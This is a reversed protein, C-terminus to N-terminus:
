SQIVVHADGVLLGKDKSAMQGEIGIRASMVSTERGILWKALATTVESTLMAVAARAGGANSDTEGRDEVLYDIVDDSATLWVGYTSRVQDMLKKLKAAVIRRITAPSLPTFPVIVDLRGLLEPPFKQDAATQSLARRIEALRQAMVAASGTDDPDYAGIVQYIEAAVNTTLAVHFNAMSVQRGHADTIRADDLVALLLRTCSASAKEIEDLMILGHGVAWARGALDARFTEVMSDQSYESMDFRLLRSTPGEAAQPGYLVRAVQKLLETNHTVIHEGAQYLHEDNDVYFCVMDEFRDLKEISFIRVLDFRESRGHKHSHSAHDLTVQKDPSNEFFRERQDRVARVNLRREFPSARHTTSSVGLSFL